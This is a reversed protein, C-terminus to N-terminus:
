LVPWQRGRDPGDFGAATDVAATWETDTSKKYEVEYGDAPIPAGGNQSAPVINWTLTIRREPPDMDDPNDDFEGLSIRVTPAAQPATASVAISNSEESPGTGVSNRARVAFTYETGPTLNTVEQKTDDAGASRWTNYSGGTTVKYQYEYDTIQAGGNFAPVNWTLTVM